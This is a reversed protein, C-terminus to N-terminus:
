SARDSQRSIERLAKAAGLQRDSCAWLGAPVRCACEDGVGDQEHYGRPQQCKAGVVHNAVRVTQTGHQRGALATQLRHVSTEGLLDLLALGQLLAEIVRTIVIGEGPQRVPAIEDNLEFARQMLQARSLSVPDRYHEDIDVAEPQDVVGETVRSTVFHHDLGGAAELMGKRCKLTHESAPTAILEGEEQEINM